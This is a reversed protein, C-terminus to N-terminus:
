FTATYYSVHTVTDVRVAQKVRHRAFAVIRQIEALIDPRTSYRPSPGGSAEGRARLIPQAGSQVNGHRSSTLMYLPSLRWGVVPSVLLQRSDEWLLSSHVGHSSEDGGANSPKGIMPKGTDSGGQGQGHRRDSEQMDRHSRAGLRAHRTDAAMGHATAGIASAGSRVMSAAVRRATALRDAADDPAALEKSPRRTRGRGSAGPTAQEPPM